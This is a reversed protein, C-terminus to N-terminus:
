FFTGDTMIGTLKKGAEKCDNALGVTSYGDFDKLKQETYGLNRLYKYAEQYGELNM